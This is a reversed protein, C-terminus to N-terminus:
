QNGSGTHTAGVGVSSLPKCQFLYLTTLDTACSSMNGCTILMLAAEEPEPLSASPALAEDVPVCHNSAESHTERRTTGLATDATGRM